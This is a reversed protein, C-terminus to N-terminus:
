KKAESSEAASRLAFETYPMSPEAPVASAPVGPGPQAPNPEVRKMELAAFRRGAFGSEANLKAVYTPLLSPDLLRGRIEIDRDALTFGVLWVGNVLQRSFGQMVESFGQGQDIGGGKLVGLVERRQDIGEHLATLRKALVEDGHRDALVKGVSAVQQQLASVQAKVQVDRSALENTQFTAVVALILALLLGGGGAATVVPLALWDFRPRLEPLLLNIQQSM